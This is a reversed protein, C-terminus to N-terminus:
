RVFYPLFLKVYPPEAGTDVAEIPVLESVSGASNRAIVSVEYIGPADFTHTLPNGEQPPSGDGFDWTYTVGSGASVTATFTTPLNVSTTPAPTHAIALGDILDAEDFGIDYGGGLPRTHGEFDEFIGVGAGADVAASGASLHFDNNEPAVFYPDGEISHGGSTVSGEFNLGNQYLLLYDEHVTGGLNRIGVAHQAIISNNVIFAGGDVGIAADDDGESNVLTAHWMNVTGPSKLALAGANVNADNHAFLTNALFGDHSLHSLGGGDSASNGFFSCRDVHMPGFAVIGGGAAGATNSVFDTRTISLSQGLGVPASGSSPAALPAYIMALGGGSGNLALNEHFTADLVHMTGFGALGGGDQTAANHVFHTGSIVVHDAYLGGGSKMSRNEAFSGHMVGVISAALGGGNGGATNSIFTTSTVITFYGTAYGSFLGGGDNGSSNGEFHSDVAKLERSAYVGGGDGQAHNDLLRVRQLTLEGFNRIGAGRGATYGNQITLDAIRAEVLGVNLGRFNGNADIALSSMGTGTIALSDSIPPLPSQLSIICPTSPTCAPLDFVVHDPGANVNAQLLAQRLSGPGADDTTTVTYTIAGAQAQVPQFAGMVGLVFTCLAMALASGLGLYTLRYIHKKM